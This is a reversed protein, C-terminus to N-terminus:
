IMSWKNTQYRGRPHHESFVQGNQTTSEQGWVISAGLPLIRLDPGPAQRKDLHVTSNTPDEIFGESEYGLTFALSEPVILCSLLGLGVLGLQRLSTFAM